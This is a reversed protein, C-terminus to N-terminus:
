GLTQEIAAQENELKDYCDILNTHTEFDNPQLETALKLQQAAKQYEGKTRYAMGLAKRVIPRDQGTREAEQALFVAYADRDKARTLVSQLHGM